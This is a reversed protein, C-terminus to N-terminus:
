RGRSRCACRDDVRGDAAAEDRLDERLAQRELADVLREALLLERGQDVGAVALVAVLRGDEEGVAEAREAVLVRRLGADRDADVVHHDRVRLM